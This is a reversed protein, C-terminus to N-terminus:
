PDLLTLHFAVRASGFSQLRKAMSGQLMGNAKGLGYLKVGFGLHCLSRVSEVM